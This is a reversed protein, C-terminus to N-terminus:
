VTTNTYLLGLVFVVRTIHTQLMGYLESHLDIQAILSLKCLMGTQLHSKDTSLSALDYFSHIEEKSVTLTGWFQTDNSLATLFPLVQYCNRQKTKDTCMHAGVIKCEM